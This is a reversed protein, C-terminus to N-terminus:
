QYPPSDNSDAFLKLAYFHPPPAAGVVETLFRNLDPQISAAAHARFILKKRVISVRIVPAPLDLKYKKYYRAIGESITKSINRAQFRNANNIKDVSKKYASLVTAVVRERAPDDLVAGTVSLGGHPLQDTPWATYDTFLDQFDISREMSKATSFPMLSQMIMGASAPEVLSIGAAPFDFSLDCHPNTNLMARKKLLKAADMVSMYCVKFDVVTMGSRKLAAQFILDPGGNKGGGTPGAVILGKGRLDRFSQIHDKRYTVESFGKWLGVYVLRLDPIEGSIVKEAATYTMSLLADAKGGAFAKDIESGNGVPVIEVPLTPDDKLAVLLPFLNPNPTAAVRLREQSFVPLSFCCSLLLVPFLKM